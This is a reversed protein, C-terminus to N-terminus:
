KLRGDSRPTRRWDGNGIRAGRRVGSVSSQRGDGEEVAMASSVGSRRCEGRVSVSEAVGGRAGSSSSWCAAVLIM